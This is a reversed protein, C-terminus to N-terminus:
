RSIALPKVEKAINEALIGMADMFKDPYGVQDRTGLYALKKSSVDIHDLEPFWGGWDSQLERINWTLCPIILCKYEALDDNEVSGIEHLIVIDGGVEDRIIEAVSETKDTTTGYFLGIAKSM